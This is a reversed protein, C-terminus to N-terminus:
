SALNNCVDNMCTIMEDDDRQRKVGDEGFPESQHLQVRSQLTEALEHGILYGSTMTSSHIFSHCTINFM